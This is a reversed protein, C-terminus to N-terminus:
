VVSKRDKLSQLATDLTQIAADAANVEVNAKQRDEETAMPDQVVHQSKFRHSAQQTKSQILKMQIKHAAELVSLSPLDPPLDNLFRKAIPHVDVLQVRLASLDHPLALEYAKLKKLLLEMDAEELEDGLAFLSSNMIGEIAINQDRNKNMIQALIMNLASGEKQANEDMYSPTDTFMRAMMKGLSFGDERQDYQEGKRMVQQNSFAPTVAGRSPVSGNSNDSVEAAGFDILKPEGAETLLINAPKIDFHTVNQKKLLLLAQIVGKLQKAQLKNKLTAPIVGLSAGATLATQQKEMDRGRVEEMVMFPSGEADFAASELRIINKKGPETDPAKKLQLLAIMENCLSQRSEMDQILLGKLVVTKHPPTKSVMRHIVGQGGAGLEDAMVYVEGGMVLERHDQSVVAIDRTTLAQIMVQLISESLATVGKMKPNRLQLETNFKPILDDYLMRLMKLRRVEPDGNQIMTVVREELRKQLEPTLSPKKSRALVDFTESTLAKLSLGESPGDVQRQTEEPLMTIAMDKSMQRLIELRANYVFHPADQLADRKEQPMVMQGETGGEAPIMDASTLGEPYVTFVDELADIWFQIRDKTQQKFQHHAALLVSTQKPVFPELSSMFPLLTHDDLLSARLHDDLEKRLRVWFGVNPAIASYAVIAKELRQYKEQATPLFQTLRIDSPPCEAVARQLQCLREYRGILYDQIPGNQDRPIAAWGELPEEHLQTLIRASNAELWGNLTITNAAVDRMAEALANTERYFETVIVRAKADQAFSDIERLTHDLTKIAREKPLAGSLFQDRLEDLTNHVTPQVWEPLLTKWSSSALFEARRQVFEKAIKVKSKPLYRGELFHTQLYAKMEPTLPM